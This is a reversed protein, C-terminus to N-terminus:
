AIQPQQSPEAGCAHGLTIHGIHEPKSNQLPNPPMHEKQRMNWRISCLSIECGQLILCPVWLAGSGIGLYSFPPIQFKHVQRSSGRPFRRCRVSSRSTSRESIAESIVPEVHLRTYARASAQFIRHLRRPQWTLSFAQIVLSIAGSVCCYPQKKYSTCSPLM